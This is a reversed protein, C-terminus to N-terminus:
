LKEESKVVCSKICARLEKLYDIYLRHESVLESEVLESEVM